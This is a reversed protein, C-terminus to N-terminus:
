RPGIRFLSTRYAGCKPLSTFNNHLYELKMFKCIQPLVNRTGHIKRKHNSHYSEQGFMSYAWLPGWRAFCLPLHILAHMNASCVHQSYLTPLLEYFANLAKQSFKLDEVTIANNLLVYMSCVLLAYHHVYDGPLVQILIPLSYYLLWARYESAKWLARELLSRAHIRFNDPPKINLLYENIINAKTPNIYYNYSSNSPDLWIDLLQKVVGLLVCHMYDIVAHKVINIYINLVSPGKVGYISIGKALARAAYKIMMEM